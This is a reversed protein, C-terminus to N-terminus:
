KDIIAGLREQYYHSEVGRPFLQSSNGSVFDNNGM